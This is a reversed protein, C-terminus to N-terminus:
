PVRRGRGEAPEGQAGIEALAAAPAHLQQGLHEIPIPEVLDLGEGRAFGGTREHGATPDARPRDLADDIFVNCALHRTGRSGPGEGRGLVSGPVANRVLRGTGRSGTPGDDGLASGLSADRM